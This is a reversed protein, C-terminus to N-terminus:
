TSGKAKALDREADDLQEGALDYDGACLDILAFGVSRLIPDVKAHYTSITKIDAPNRARLDSTGALVEYARGMMQRDRQNM